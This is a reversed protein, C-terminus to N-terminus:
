RSSPTRRSWMAFRASNLRPSPAATWVGEPPPKTRCGRERRSPSPPPPPPPSAAAVGTQDRARLGALLTRVALVQREVRPDPAIGAVIVDVGRAALRIAACADEESGVPVVAVVASGSPQAATAAGAVDGRGQTARDAGHQPPAYRRLSAVPAGALTGTLRVPLRTAVIAPDVDLGGDAGNCAVLEGAPAGGATDPEMDRAFAGAPPPSPRELHVHVTAVGGQGVAVGPMVWAVLRAFPSADLPRDVVVPVFGPAAAVVRYRGAYLGGLVYSGSADSRSEVVNGEADLLARLMTLEQHLGRAVEQGAEHRLSRGDVTQLGEALRAMEEQQLRMGQQLADLGHHLADIARRATTLEDGVWTGRLDAPIEEFGRSAEPIM